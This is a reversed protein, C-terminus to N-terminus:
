NKRKQVLENFLPSIEVVCLNFKEVRRAPINGSKLKVMVLQSSHTCVKHEMFPRSKATRKLYSELRITTTRTLATCSSRRHSLRKRAITYSNRPPSLTTRGRSVRVGQTGRSPGVSGMVHVKEMHPQLAIGNLTLGMSKKMNLCTSSTKGTRTKVVLEM